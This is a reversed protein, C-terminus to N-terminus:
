LLAASHRGLDDGNGQCVVPTNETFESKASDTTKDADPKNKAFLISRYVIDGRDRKIHNLDNNDVM